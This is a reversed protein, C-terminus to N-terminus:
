QTTCPVINLIRYYGAISFFKSFSVHVQIVSDNQEVSSILVVNYILYVKIFYVKFFFSWLGPSRVEPSSAASVSSSKLLFCSASQLCSSFISDWPHQRCHSTKDSCTKLKPSAITPVTHSLCWASHCASRTVPYLIVM